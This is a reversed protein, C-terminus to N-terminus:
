NRWTGVLAARVDSPEIGGMRGLQELRRVRWQIRRALADTVAVAAPAMDAAVEARCVQGYQIILDTLGAVDGYAVAETTM